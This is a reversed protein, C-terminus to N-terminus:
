EIERRLEIGKLDRLEEARLMDQPVRGGRKHSTHKTTRRAM